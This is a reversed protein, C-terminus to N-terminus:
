REPSLSVTQISLKGKHRSGDLKRKLWNVVPQEIFRFAVLAGITAVLTSSIVLVPVSSIGLRTLTEVNANIAFPHTLYLAYSADGLVVAMRLIRGDRPAPSAFVVAVFLAAAPIGNEILRTPHVSNRLALHLLLAAIGTAIAATRPLKFNQTYLLGFLLGVVFECVIPQFYFAVASGHPRYIAAALTTLVFYAVIATIGVRRSALLGIAFVVYFYMELNLTWGLAFLPFVEGSPNPWAIMLFSMILHNPNMLTHRLIGPVLAIAITAAVTALWYMPVIRIFRRRLFAIPALPRGFDNRSVYLMLFGSIIFFIDVGIGLEVPLYAHSVPGHRENVKDIEQFSHGVTVATAAIWRLVQISPINSKIGNSM